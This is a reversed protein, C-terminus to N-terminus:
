DLARPDGWAQVLNGEPDFEIIPPAMRGANMDGDQVDQRNLILVHDKADVCNGGLGGLVWREPLPKPWNVVAEYRPAKQAWAPSAFIMGAAIALLAYAGARFLSITNM